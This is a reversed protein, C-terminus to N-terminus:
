GAPESGEGAQPLPTPPSPLRMCNRHRKVEHCRQGRGRGEGLPLPSVVTQAEANLANSLGCLGALGAHGGARHDAVTRVGRRRSDDRGARGGPVM